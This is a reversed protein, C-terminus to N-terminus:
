FFTDSSTSNLQRNRYDLACPNCRHRQRLLLLVVVVLGYVFLIRLTDVNLSVTSNFLGDKLKPHHLFTTDLLSDSHVLVVM